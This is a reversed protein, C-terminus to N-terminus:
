YLINIFNCNLHRKQHFEVIAKSKFLVINVMSLSKLHACILQQMEIHISLATTNFNKTTQVIKEINRSLQKVIRWKLQLIGNRKTPQVDRLVEWMWSQKKVIEIKVEMASNLLNYLMICISDMYLILKKGMMVHTM